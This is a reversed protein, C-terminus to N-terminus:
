SGPTDPNIGAEGLLARFQKICRMRTPGISGKPMDMVVAIEQYSLKYAILMLLQQCRLGLRRMVALVVRRSQRTAVIEDVAPGLDAHDVADEALPITRRGLRIVRLSERKTVTVLWANVRGPERLTGLNELLRLWVVQAVDQADERGLRHQRIVAWVLGNFHSVLANWAEPEGAAARKVLDATEDPDNSGM